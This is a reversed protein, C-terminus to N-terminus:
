FDTTEGMAMYGKGIIRKSEQKKMLEGQKDLCHFTIGLSHIKLSDEMTSCNIVEYKGILTDFFGINNPGHIHTGKGTKRLEITEGM